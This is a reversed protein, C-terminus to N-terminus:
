NAGIDEMIKRFENSDLNLEVNTQITTDGNISRIDLEKLEIDVKYGLKKYIARSILKSVITRMFRSTLKVNMKDM